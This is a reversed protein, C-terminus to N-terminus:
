ESSSGIAFRVIRIVVLSYSHRAAAADAGAPALDIEAGHEGALGNAYAIDIVLDQQDFEKLIIQSVEILTAGRNFWRFASPTGVILNKFQLCTFGGDDSGSLREILPIGSQCM